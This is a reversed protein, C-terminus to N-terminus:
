NQSPRKWPPTYSDLTHSLVYQTKIMQKTDHNLKHSNYERIPVSSLLSARMSVIINDYVLAVCWDDFKLGYYELIIHFYKLHAEANFKSAEACEDESTKGDDCVKVIPSVGILTQRSKIENLM